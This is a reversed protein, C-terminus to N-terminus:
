RCERRAKRFVQGRLVFIDAEVDAIFRDRGSIEKGVLDGAGGDGMGTGCAEVSALCCCFLTSFGFFEQKYKLFFLWTKSVNIIYFRLYM